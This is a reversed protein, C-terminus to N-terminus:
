EKSPTCNAKLNAVGSDSNEKDFQYVISLVVTKHAGFVLSADVLWAVM